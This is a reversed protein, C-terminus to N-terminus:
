GRLVTECHAHAAINEGSVHDPNLRRASVLTGRDADCFHRKAAFVDGACAFSFFNEDMRVLFNRAAPEDVLDPLARFIIGRADRRKGGAQRQQVNIHFQRSSEAAHLNLPLNMFLFKLEGFRFFLREVRFTDNLFETFQAVATKFCSAHM